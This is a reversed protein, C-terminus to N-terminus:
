KERRSYKLEAESPRVYIPQADEPGLGAISDASYFYELLARASLADATDEEGPYPGIGGRNFVGRYRVYGPGYVFSNQSVTKYVLNEPTISIYDSLRSIGQEERRYLATYVEGKRADLAPVVLDYGAPARYAMVDLTPVPFIRVNMAQAIGFAFSFGVRIGTFSGPGSCIVVGRIDSRGSEAENLMEDLLPLFVESFQRERPQSRFSLVRGDIGLAISGPPDTPEIGLYLGKRLLDGSM